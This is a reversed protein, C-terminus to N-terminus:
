IRVQRVHVDRHAGGLHQLVARGVETSGDQDRPTTTVLDDVLGVVRRHARRQEGRGPLLGGGGLGGDGSRGFSGLLFLTSMMVRRGPSRIMSPSSMVIWTISITPLLARTPM